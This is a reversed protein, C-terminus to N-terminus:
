RVPDSIPKPLSLQRKGTKSDAPSESETVGGGYGSDESVNSSSSSASSQFHFWM